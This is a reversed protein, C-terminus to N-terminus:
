ETETPNEGEGEATVEVSAEEEASGDENTQANQANEMISEEETKGGFAEDAEANGEELSYSGDSTSANSSSEYKSMDVDYPLGSPMPNIVIEMTEKIGELWENYKENTLTSVALDKIEQQSEEPIQEISVLEGEAPAVFMDTCMIIHYGYTSKVPEPSIQGVELVALGDTYETIFNSMKDWGVDGGNAASGTDQSYEAVANEFSIAGSNIDALVQDAKEKAAEWSEDSTTDEPTILIHSSRKAGNYYAAYSKAAELYDEETPEAQEKFHNSVARAIMSVRVTERYGDETFGAQELANQWATDTSYNAKFTEVTESVEDDSIEIGLDSAAEAVMYREVLYNIVTERIKEPSSGSYALYAGWIDESTLGTQSRLRQIEQTVEGEKIEYSGVTAAVSTENNASNCASLIVVSSMILGAVLVTKVFRALKM